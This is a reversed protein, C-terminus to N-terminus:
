SGRPEQKWFRSPRSTRMSGGVVRVLSSPRYTWARLGPLTPPPLNPSRTTTNFPVFATFRYAKTPPAPLEWAQLCVPLQLAVGVENVIEAAMAATEGEWYGDNLGNTWKPFAGSTHPGWSYQKISGPHTLAAFVAAASMLVLVATLLVSLGIRRASVRKM